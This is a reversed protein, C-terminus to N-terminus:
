RGFNWWSQSYKEKQLKKAIKEEEDSLTGCILQISFYEEFGKILADILEETVIKEKALENLAIFDVGVGSKNRIGSANLLKEKDGEILISGHQLFANKLRKQASGVMKKGQYALEYKSTSFFCPKNNLKYTYQRNLQPIALQAPININNFGHVLAASIHRYTELTSKSFFDGKCLSVVSYTLEKDHLVARGGTPRRVIDIRNRKCFNLDVTKKWQQAYGLSLTPINWRFFRLVPFLSQEKNEQCNLLLAEDIAMNLPSDLANDIILRWKDKSNSL